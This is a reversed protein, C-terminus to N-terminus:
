TPGLRIAVSLVLELQRKLRMHGRSVDDAIAVSLAISYQPAGGPQPDM